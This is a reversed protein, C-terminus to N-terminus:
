TRHLLPVRMIARKQTKERRRDRLNPVKIGMDDHYMMHLTDLMDDHCQAGPYWRSFEEDIFVRTMDRETGTHDTHWCHYPLWIKHESLPGALSAIADNKNIKGKAPRGQILRGKAGLPILEFRFNEQKKVYEIHEIDSQMGIEEYGVRIIKPFERILNFMLQTREPLSLKDRVLRIVMRNDMEDVGFLNFVTYDDEKKKKYGAPDVVLYLNLNRYTEADWFRLDDQSFKHKSASKPDLLIQCAFIYEGFDRRKKEVTAMNWYGISQMTGDANMIVGPRSREKAIGESVITEYTDNADWRTGIFRRKTIDLGTKPDTKGLNLSLRVGETAKQIMEPNTVSKETVVDDYIMRDYHKSTPQSDDALGWAELTAEKPNGSRKVILGGDESWKLSEKEPNDYLIDPFLIKLLANKELERKIQLLFQKALPRTVSFIVNTEEPYRLVDQITGAFTIISSKFHERSWLDCYGNSDLQYERARDFVWDIDAFEMKLVYIMLFFLDGLALARMVGNIIEDDDTLAAEELLMKYYLHAKARTPQLVVGWENSKPSMM